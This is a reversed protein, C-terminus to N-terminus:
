PSVLLKRISFIIIIKKRRFSMNFYDKMVINSMYVSREGLVCVESRNTVLANKPM